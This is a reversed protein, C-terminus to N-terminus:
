KNVGQLKRRHAKLKKIAWDYHSSTTSVFYSGLANTGTWKYRGKEFLEENTFTDALEVVQKHSQLLMEKAQELTTNQHKEFFGINMGVYTKWNYPEPLFPVENGKTNNGVWNIILQHWEYLHVLVDRLNKDRSWHAETKKVDDSFDFPTELERVTLSDILNLLEEFKNIAGFILDTKNTPRPM